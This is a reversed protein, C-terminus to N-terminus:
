GKTPTEPRDNRCFFVAAPVPLPQTFSSSLSFPSFVAERFEEKARIQGVSQGTSRREHRHTHTLTHLNRLLSRNVPRSGHLFFIRERSARGLREGASERTRRGKQAPSCDHQAYPLSCCAAAPVRRVCSPCISLLPSVPGRSAHCARDKANRTDEKRSDATSQNEDQTVLLVIKSHRRM